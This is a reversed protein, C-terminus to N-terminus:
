HLGSISDMLEKQLPQKSRSASGEDNINILIQCLVISSLVKPKNYTLFSQIRSQFAGKAQLTMVVGVETMVM